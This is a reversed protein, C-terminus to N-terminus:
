PNGKPRGTQAHLIGVVLVLTLIALGTTTTTTLHAIM